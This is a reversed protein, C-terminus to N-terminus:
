QLSLSHVIGLGTELAIVLSNNCLRPVQGASAIDRPVPRLAEEADKNGVDLHSGLVSM